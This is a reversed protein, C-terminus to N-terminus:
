PKQVFEYWLNGSEKGNIYIPGIANEESVNGSSAYNYKLEAKEGKKLDLDWSIYNQKDQSADNGTESINSSLKATGYWVFSFGEPIKDTLTGRFNQNATVSIVMPYRNADNLNIRASGWRSVSLEPLNRAVSFGSTGVSGDTNTLTIKYDGEDSTKFYAFYDPNNVIKDDLSCTTSPKVEPFSEESQLTLNSVSLKINSNCLTNGLHDLSTIQIYVEEGPAYVSKDTNVLLTGPTVNSENNKLRWKKISIIGIIAALILFVIAGAIYIRKKSTLQKEM